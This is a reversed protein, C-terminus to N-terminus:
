ASRCAHPFPHPSSRMPLDPLNPTRNSPLSLFLFPSCQGRTYQYLTDKASALAKAWLESTAETSNLSESAGRLGSALANFFISYLAGSTGDM